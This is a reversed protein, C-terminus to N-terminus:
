DPQVIIYSVQLHGNETIEFEPKITDGTEGKTNISSSVGQRNTVTLVYGNLQANVNEAGEVAAATAQERDL